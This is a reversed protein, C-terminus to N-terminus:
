IKAKAKAKKVTKKATRKAQRKVAAKSPPPRGAKKRATATKAEKKAAKRAAKKVIKVKKAASIKKGKAEAKKIKKKAETKATKKAIAAGRKAPKSQRKVKAQHSWKQVEKALLQQGKRGAKKVVKAAKSMPKRFVKQYAKKHIPKADKWREISSKAGKNLEEGLEDQREIRIKGGQAQDLGERGAAEVEVAAIDGGEAGGSCILHALLMALQLGRWAVMTVRGMEGM